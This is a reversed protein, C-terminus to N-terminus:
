RSLTRRWAGTEKGDNSHIPIPAGRGGRGTRGRMEDIGPPINASEGGSQWGDEVHTGFIRAVQGSTRGMQREIFENANKPIGDPM